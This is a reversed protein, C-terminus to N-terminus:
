SHFFEGHLKKATECYAAHALEETEFSGLHTSKGNIRIHALWRDSRPAYSVGKYKSTKNKAGRRNRSNERRTALRLNKIRNDSPNHNIHDIEIGKAVEEGHHIAWALHHAPYVAYMLGIRRYGNPHIKGAIKGAFRSNWANCQNENTFMSLPRVRWILDGTEPNYSLLQQLEDISIHLNKHM